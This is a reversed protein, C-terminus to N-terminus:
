TDKVELLQKLLGKSIKKKAIKSNLEDILDEQSKIKELSPQLQQTV